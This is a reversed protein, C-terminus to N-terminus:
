HTFSAEHLDGRWPFPNELQNPDTMLALSHIPIGATQLQDCLERQREATAERVVVQLVYGNAALRLGFRVPLPVNLNSELVALLDRPGFWRDASRVCFRKKGLLHGTAPHHRLSCRCPESLTRVMDGTDYRLLITSERFPFFPTLVLSGATDASAPQGTDPDIVELLGRLPDFHLHGEECYSGGFPWAESIGYGEDFAVPGFLAQTRQRLGPSSVEGGITIRELGFDQPGYGAAHGAELLGGLYSPYTFLISVQSKRKPLRHQEALLALAREPEVVGTQYVLAGTQRYADIARQNGLLARASTSVQVIDKDSILGQRLLGLAAMLTFIQSERSTFLMSTGQGTTGTTMTRLTPSFGRRVFGEPRGRLDAKTTLPLERFHALTVEQWNIGSEAFRDGYFDTECVALQVQRGIRRELAQQLFRPNPDVTRRSNAARNKNEATHARVLHTLSPLHIPAGTVFSRFMALHAAASRLKTIPNM